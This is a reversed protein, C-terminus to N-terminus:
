SDDGILHRRIAAGAAYATANADPRRGIAANLQEAVILADAARLPEGAAIAEPSIVGSVAAVVPDDPLAARVDTLAADLVPLAFAGVEQDPDRELVTRLSRILAEVREKAKYAYDKVIM